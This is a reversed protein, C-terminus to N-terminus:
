NETTTRSLGNGDAGPVLEANHEGILEARYRRQVVPARAASPVGGRSATGALADTRGAGAKDRTM